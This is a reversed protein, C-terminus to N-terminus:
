DVGVEFLVEQYLDSRGVSDFGLRRCEDEREIKEFLALRPDFRVEDFAGAPDIPVLVGDHAADEDRAVYVLRVEDEHAFATRKFLVSEAHGRGGAFAGLRHRGIEDAIYREVDRQPLYRVAGVFCHEDPENPCWARLAALLKRPTTRVQVGEDDPYENRARRRDNKVISYARWLSDSEPTGSWSQGFLPRRIRDFFQQPAGSRHTIACMTLLNEFPDDWSEPPALYLRHDTLLQWFRRLKFIRFIPADPDAIRIYGPESPSMRGCYRGLPEYTPVGPM